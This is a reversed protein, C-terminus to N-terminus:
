SLKMLLYVFDSMMHIVLYINLKSSIERATDIIEHMKMVSIDSPIEAHIIRCVDELDM